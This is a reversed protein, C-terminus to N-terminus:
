ATDEGGGEKISHFVRLCRIPEGLNFLSHGGIQFRKQVVVTILYTQEGLIWIGYRQDHVSEGGERGFQLLM